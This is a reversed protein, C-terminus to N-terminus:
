NFIINTKLNLEKGKKRAVIVPSYTFEGKENVAPRYDVYMYDFDGELSITIDKMTGAEHVIVTNEEQIFTLDLPALHLLVDIFVENEAKVEDTIVASKELLKFSRTRNFSIEGRKGCVAYNVEKSKESFATLKVDDYSRQTINPIDNQRVCVTNHAWEGLFYKHVAHHDYSCCGSDVIIRKGDKYLMFNPRGAHQHVQTLPMGDIFMDISENRLVGGASDEFIVSQKECLEIPFILKVFEFDKSADLTYADNFIISKGDRASMQHMWNYQKQISEYLGDIAPKGNRELMIYCEVYMRAIFHSYSSCGENSGGDKKVAGKLQIKLLERATQEFEDANALEPVLCAIYLLATGLQLVHNHLSGLKAYKKGEELIQSAHLMVFDYIKQWKDKTLTESEGLMAISHLVALLRWSVQMDRWVLSTIYGESGKVTQSINKDDSWVSKTVANDDEKMEIYPHAAYWDEFCRFWKGAYEEDKTKLFKNALPILFYLRNIWVFWELPACVQSDMFQHYPLDWDFKGSEDIWNAFLSGDMVAEALTDGNWGKGLIDNALLFAGGDMIYFPFIPYKKLLEENYPYYCEKSNEFYPKVFRM